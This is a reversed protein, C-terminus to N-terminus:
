AQLNKIMSTIILLSRNCSNILRGIRILLYISSDHIIYETLIIEIRFEKRKFQSKTNVYIATRAVDISMREWWYRESLKNFRAIIGCHGGGAKKEHLSKLITSYKERNPVASLSLDNFKPGFKCHM